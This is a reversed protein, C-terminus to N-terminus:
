RAVTFLVAAHENSADEFLQRILKLMAWIEDSEKETPQKGYDDADLAMYKEAFEARKLDHLGEAVNGVDYQEAEFIGVVGFLVQALEFGHDLLDELTGLTAEDGAVVEVVLAVEM